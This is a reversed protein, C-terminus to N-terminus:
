GYTFYNYGFNKDIIKLNRQSFVWNDDNTYYQLKSNKKLQITTNKLNESTQLRDLSYDKAYRWFNTDHVSGGHYFYCIMEEIKKAINVFIENYNKPKELIYDYTIRNISDYLSLSNAFMPEFFVAANGNKIIKGDTINNCYYSKFSYEINQLKDIPVSIQESFNKRATEIDTINTNFMYGYSERTQLPLSFMWGDKTATHHTYKWDASRPINHVLGYNVPNGQIITYDNNLSKPFGRCDIVYDFAFEKGDVIVIAKNNYNIIDSVKGQLEDFKDKWLHKFRNFAFQKLKYTDFHIAVTGSILPNIIDDERWEIFKTGFKHTANLTDLDKIIDFNLGYEIASIFSANTSEGIGLIKTDPDHISTIQWNNDIWALFHCLAQIGASGIGVVALKKM